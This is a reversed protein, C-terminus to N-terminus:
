RLERAKYEDWTEPPPELAIGLREAIALYADQEGQSTGEEYGYAAHYRRVEPWREMFVSKVVALVADAAELAERQIDDLVGGERETWEPHVSWPEGMAGAIYPHIARGMQERLTM